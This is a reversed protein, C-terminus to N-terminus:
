HFVVYQLLAFMTIFVAGYHVWEWPKDYETVVGVHDYLFKETNGGEIGSSLDEGKMEIYSMGDDRIAAGEMGVRKLMEMIAYEDLPFAYGHLLMSITGIGASIATIYLFHIEFGEFCMPLIWRLLIFVVPCIISCIHAARPRIHNCSYRSGCFYFDTTGVIYIVVVPVNWLGNVSLAFALAAPTFVFFPAVSLAFVGSWIGVNRAVNFLREESAGPNIWVKYIDMTMMQCVTNLNSNFTSLVAGIIVAAYIGLSWPPLVKKMLRPYAEDTNGELMIGDEKLIHFAIIGPLVIIWPVLVKVFGATITGQQAHKLNRAALIRQIIVQQM